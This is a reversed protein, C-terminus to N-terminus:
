KFREEHEKCAMDALEACTSLIAELMDTELDGSLREGRELTSPLAALFVREWFSQRPDRPKLADRVNAIAVDMRHEAM